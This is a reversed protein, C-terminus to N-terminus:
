LTRSQTQIRGRPFSSLFQYDIPLAVSLLRSLSLSTPCRLERQQIADSVRNFRQNHKFQHEHGRLQLALWEAAAWRFLCGLKRRFLDFTKVPGAIARQHARAYM